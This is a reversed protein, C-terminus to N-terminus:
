GFKIPVGAAKLAAMISGMMFLFSAVAVWEHAAFAFM